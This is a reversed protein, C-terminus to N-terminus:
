YLVGDLGVRNSILSKIRCKRLLILATECFATDSYALPIENLQQNKQSFTFLAHSFQICICFILFLVQLERKKVDRILLYSVLTRM